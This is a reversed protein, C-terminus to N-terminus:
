EGEGWWTGGGEPKVAVGRQLKLKWENEAMEVRPRSCRRLHIIVLRRFNGVPRVNSCCERPRAENSCESHSRLWPLEVGSDDGRWPVIVQTLTLKFRGLHTQGTQEVVITILPSSRCKV